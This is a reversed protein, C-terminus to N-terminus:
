GPAFSGEQLAYAPADDSAEDLERMTMSGDFYRIM